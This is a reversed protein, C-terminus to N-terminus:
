MGSSTNKAKELAQGLAGIVQESDNMIDRM